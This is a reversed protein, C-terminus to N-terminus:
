GRSHAALPGACPRFCGPIREEPACTPLSPLLQQTPAHRWPVVVNTTTNNCLYSGPKFYLCPMSFPGCVPQPHAAQAQRFHCNGDEMEPQRFVDFGHPRFPSLPVDRCRGGREAAAIAGTKATGSLGYFRFHYLKAGKQYRYKGQIKYYVASICAFLYFVQKIRTDKVGLGVDRAASPHCNCGAPLRYIVPARSHHRLSPRKGTWPRPFSRM